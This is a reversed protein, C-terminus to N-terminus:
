VKGHDQENSFRQKHVAPNSVISRNIQLYWSLLTSNRAIHDFTQSSSEISILNCQAAAGMGIDWCMQKPTINLNRPINHPENMLKM